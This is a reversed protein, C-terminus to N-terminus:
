GGIALGAFKLSRSGLICWKQMQLQCAVTPQQSLNPQSIRLQGGLKWWKTCPPRNTAECLSQAPKHVEQHTDCGSLSDRMMSVVAPLWVIEICRSLSALRRSGVALGQDQSAPLRSVPMQLEPEPRIRPFSPLLEDQHPLPRPTRPLLSRM